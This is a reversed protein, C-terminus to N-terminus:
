QLQLALADRQMVGSAVPHERTAMTLGRFCGLMGFNNRGGRQFCLLEKLTFAAPRKRGALPAGAVM